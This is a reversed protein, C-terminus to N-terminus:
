AVNTLTTPATTSSFDPPPQGDPTGSYAWLGFTSGFTSYGVYVRVFYIVDVESQWSVGSQPGPCSDRDDDNNGAVCTLGLTCNGTYVVLITDLFSDDLSTGTCTSVTLAEGTGVLSFWVDAASQKYPVFQPGCESLASTGSAGDTTATVIQDLELLTSNECNDNEPRPLPEMKGDVIRIGYDGAILESAGSLRILYREGEDTLWSAVATTPSCTSGYFDDNSTVCTLNTCTGSYVTVVGDFGNYDLSALGTCTTVTLWEGTGNVQFWVDPSLRYDIRSESGCFGLQNSLSASPTATITSGATLENSLVKANECLDNAPPPIPPFTPYQIM